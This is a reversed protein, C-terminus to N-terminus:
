SVQAKSVCSFHLQEIDPQSSPSIIVVPYGGEQEAGKLWKYFVEDCQQMRQMYQRLESLTWFECQVEDEECSVEDSTFVLAGLGRDRKYDRWIRMFEGFSAQTAQLIERRTM